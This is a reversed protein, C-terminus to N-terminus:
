HALAYTLLKVWGILENPLQPWQSSYVLLTNGGKRGAGTGPAEEGRALRGEWLVLGRATLSPLSTGWSPHATGSDAASLQSFGACASCCAVHERGGNCSGARTHNPKRNVWLVWTLTSSIPPSALPPLNNRVGASGLANVPLRHSTRLFATTTQVWVERSQPRSSPWLSASFQLPWPGPM